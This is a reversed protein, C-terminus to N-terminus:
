CPLSSCVHSRLHLRVLQTTAHRVLSSSHSRSFVFLRPNSQILNPQTLKAITCRSCSSFVLLWIFTLPQYPLLFLIINPSKLADMYSHSFAFYCYALLPHSLFFLLFLLFSFALFFFCHLAAIYKFQTVVGRFLFFFLFFLSGM